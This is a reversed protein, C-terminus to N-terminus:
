ITIQINFDSGKESSSPNYHILKIDKVWTFSRMVNIWDNVDISFKCKGQIDIKETNFNYLTEDENKEKPFVILATLKINAPVTSAIQDAYYSTKSNQLLGSKLVMKEKEEIEKKLTDIQTLASQNLNISSQLKQVKTTYHSFVFYNIFVLTFVIGLAAALGVNFLRKQKYNEKLTNNPINSLSLTQSSILETFACSFAILTGAPIQEQGISFSKTEFTGAQIENLYGDTFKLKYGPTSIETEYSQSLLPLINKIALPGLSFSLVDAKKATMFQLVEDVTSKRCVGSICSSNFEDSHSLYFEDESINPLTKNLISKINDTSNFPVKKLILGKGTFSVSLPISADIHSSLFEELSLQQESKIVEVSKAKIGLLCYNIKVEDGQFSVEVGM